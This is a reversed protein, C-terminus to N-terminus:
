RNGGVVTQLRCSEALVAVIVATGTAHEEVADARGVRSMVSVLLLPL